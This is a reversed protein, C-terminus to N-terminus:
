CGCDFSPVSHDLSPQHTGGVSRVVADGSIFEPSGDGDVDACARPEFYLGPEAPDTLLTMSPGEAHVEWRWLAWFEGFFRGCGEGAQASASAYRAGDPAGFLRVSIGESAHEHWRPPRDPDPDEEAEYEEQLAHYGPLAQFRAVIHDATGRPVPAVEAFVSPAPLSPDRAWLAGECRGAPALERALLTLGGASWADEAVRQESWPPGPEGDDTQGDWQASQGWHPEFMSLVATRGARAECVPGAPGYLRLGGQTWGAVDAAGSANKGVVIPGRGVLEVAGGGEAQEAERLAVWGRGPGVLLALQASASGAGAEAGLLTSSLMEERAIRLAGGQRSLVLQKPGVDQYRGSAWTQTFSLKAGASWRNIQRDDARVVVTKRFMRQRDALWGARDFRSTRPGSRKVGLFRDAYLAQYAEFDGENQAALWGDLLAAVEEESPPPALEVPPVAPAEPSPAATTSAEDVPDAPGSCAFLLASLPLVLVRNPLM